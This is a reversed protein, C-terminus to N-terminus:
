ALSVVGGSLHNDITIKPKRVSIARKNTWGPFGVSRADSDREEGHGETEAQENHREEIGRELDHQAVLGLPRHPCRQLLQLRQQSHAV